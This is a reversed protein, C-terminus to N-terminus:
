KQRRRKLWLAQSGSLDDFPVTKRLELTWPREFLMDWFYRLSCELENDVLSKSNGFWADILNETGSLLQGDELISLLGRYTRVLVVTATYKRLRRILAASSFFMGLGELSNIFQLYFVIFEDKM